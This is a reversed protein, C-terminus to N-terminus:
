EEDRMLVPVSATRRKADAKSEQTLVLRGETLKKFDGARMMVFDYRPDGGMRGGWMPMEGSGGSGECAEIAEEMEIVGIPNAKFRTFKLSWRAAFGQLDLKWFPGSGSGPVQELGMQEAFEEEFGLGLRKSEDISM